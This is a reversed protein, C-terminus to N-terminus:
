FSKRIGATVLNERLNNGSLNSDRDFYRYSLTGVLSETFTYALSGGGTIIFDEREASGLSADTKTHAVGADFGMTMRDTLSRSYGYTIGFATEDSQATSGSRREYFGTLSSSANKHAIVLRAEFRDSVFSSSSVGFISDSFNVAQGTRVDVLNGFGDPALFANTGQPSTSGEGTNYSLEFSSRDSIQYSLSASIDARDYREGYGFQLVTRPGPRLRFGVKWILGDPQDVLTSDEIREYGTHAGVSLYRNIPVEAAFLALYDQTTRDGSPGLAAQGSFRNKTHRFEAGWRFTKFETGSAITQSYEHSESNQVGATLAETRGYRYRTEFNAHNEFGYQFFPSISGDLVVSSNNDLTVTPDASINGQANITTDQIALQSELFFLREVLESQQFLNLRHDSDNLETNDYYMRRVFTYDATVRHHASAFDILMGPEVTTYTDMRRLGPPSGFANDTFSQSVGIRPFFQVPPRLVSAGGISLPSVSPLFGSGGVQTTTQALAGGLQSCLSLAVIMARAGAARLRLPATGCRVERLTDPPGGGDAGLASRRLLLAFLPRILGGFGSAGPFTAFGFGM